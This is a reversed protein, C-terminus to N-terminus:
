ARRLVVVPIVRTTQKQYDAYGPAVAVVKEFIRDREEGEPIEAIAEYTETGLEVTARPNARLNHYWAPNNHGGAASAVIVARGDIELYGLPSTRALGSKAGTTTVLALTMGEFMGGVKGGNARFEEVVGMNFDAVTGNREDPM